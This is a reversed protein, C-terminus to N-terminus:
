NIPGPIPVRTSLSVLPKVLPRKYLGLTYNYTTPLACYIKQVVLFNPLEIHPVTRPGLTLAGVKCVCLLNLTLGAVEDFYVQLKRLLSDAPATENKSCSKTMEGRGLSQKM